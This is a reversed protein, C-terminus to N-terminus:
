LTQETAPTFTEVASLDPVELGRLKIADLAAQRRKHYASGIAIANRAALDKAYAEWTEQSDDISEVFTSGNPCRWAKVELPHSTPIEINTNM